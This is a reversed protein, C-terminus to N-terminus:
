GAPDPYQDRPVKARDVALRGVRSDHQDAVGADEVRRAGTRLHQWDRGPVSEREIRDRAREALLHPGRCLPRAGDEDVQVGGGLSVVGTGALLRPDVADAGVRAPRRGEGREGLLLPGGGAQDRLRDVPLAPGRAPSQKLGLMSQAGRPPDDLFRSVKTSMHGTLMRALRTSRRSTAGSQAAASSGTSSWIARIPANRRASIAAPPANRGAPSWM